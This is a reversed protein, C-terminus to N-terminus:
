SWKRFLKGVGKNKFVSAIQEPIKSLDQRNLDFKYGKPIPVDINNAASGSKSTIICCGLTAAERPIRDKGPHYGLDIYIKSKALLTVVEERTMNEIPIFTIEPHKKMIFDLFKKGKKPNFAVQDLKEHNLNKVNEVNVFFDDNLYDGIHISTHNFEKLFETAYKSQSLHTINQMNSVPIRTSKLSRVKMIFDRIKSDRKRYLYNDVSLWFVAKKAYKFQKLLATYREYIVILNKEEDVPNKIPSDYNSFFENSGAGSKDPIYSIYADSGALRLADVFQHLCEAGGTVSGSPCLVFIEM